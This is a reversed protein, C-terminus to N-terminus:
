FLYNGNISVQKIPLYLDIVNEPDQVVHDTKNADEYGEKKVEITHTNHFLFKDVTTKNDAQLDTKNPSNDIFVDFDM